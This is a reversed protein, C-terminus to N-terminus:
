SFWLISLLIASGASGGIGAYTCEDEVDVREIGDSVNSAEPTLLTVGIRGNFHSLLNPSNM